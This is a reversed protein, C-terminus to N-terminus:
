EVPCVPPNPGDFAALAAVIRGAQAPEIAALAAALREFNACNELFNGDTALGEQMMVALNERMAAESTQGQQVDDKDIIEIAWLVDRVIPWDGAAHSRYREALAAASTAFFGQPSLQAACASALEEIAIPALFAVASTVEAETLCREQALAPLPQAIFAAAAALPLQRLLKM